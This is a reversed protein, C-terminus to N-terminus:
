SDALRRTTRAAAARDARRRRRKRVGLAALLAGLAVVLGTVAKVLGEAVKFTAALRSMTEQPRETWPVTVRVSTEYEAISADLDAATSENGSREPRIKVVPRLQLVLTHEGGIKPTVYWSWRATDATLLSRDVWDPQDVDFEYSSARLRAQVHCSVLFGPESIANARHLVQEPPAIDNLTVAAAVAASEGRTMTKTPEYVVRAQQLSSDLSECRHRYDSLGSLSTPVSSPAAVKATGCGSLALVACACGVAGWRGWRSM